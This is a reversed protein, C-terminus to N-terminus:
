LLRKRLVYVRIKMEFVAKLGFFVTRPLWIFIIIRSMTTSFNSGMKIKVDVPKVDGYKGRMRLVAVKRIKEEDIRKKRSKWDREAVTAECSGGREEDDETTYIFDCWLSRQFCQPAGLVNILSWQMPCTRFPPSPFALIETESYIMEEGKEEALPKPKMVKKGKLDNALSRM